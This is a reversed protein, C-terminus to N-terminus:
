KGICFSSFVRDLIDDTAVVGYLQDFLSVIEKLHFSLIDESAFEFTEIVANLETMM